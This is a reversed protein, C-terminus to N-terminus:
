LDAEREAEEAGFDESAQGASEGIYPGDREPGSRSACGTSASLQLLTVALLFALRYRHSPEM